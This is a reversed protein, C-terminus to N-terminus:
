VPNEKNDPWRGPRMQAALAHARRGVQAAWRSDLMEAAAEEFRQARTAALMRRFDLLGSLGLNFALNLLVASRAPGLGRWWSLRLDLRAALAALDARLLSEAEADSLSSGPGLGRVPKADLNHGWGITLAGAPCRYAVHRGGERHEGEHRKLQSLFAASEEVRYHALRTDFETFHM